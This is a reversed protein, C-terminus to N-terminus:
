QLLLTQTPLYGSNNEPYGQLSWRAWIVPVITIDRKFWVCRYCTSGARENASVKAVGTYGHVGRVDM